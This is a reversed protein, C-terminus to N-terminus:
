KTNKRPPPTAYKSTQQIVGEIHTAAVGYQPICTGTSSRVDYGFPLGHASIVTSCIAYVVKKGGLNAYAVGSRAWSYFTSYPIHGWWSPDFGPIQFKDKMHKPGPLDQTTHM